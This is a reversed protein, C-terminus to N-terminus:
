QEALENEWERIIQEADEEALEEVTTVKVQVQVQVKTPKAQLRDEAALACATHAMRGNELVVADAGLREYCYVCRM